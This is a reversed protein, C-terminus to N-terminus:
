DEDGYGRKQKKGILFSQVLEKIYWIVLYYFLLILIPIYGYYIYEILSTVTSDTSITQAVWLIPVIFLLALFTLLSKIAQHEESFSNSIYVLFFPIGVLIVGISLEWSVM